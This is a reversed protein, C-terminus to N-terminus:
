FNDISIHDEFLSPIAETNYDVNYSVNSNIGFADLTNHDDFKVNSQQFDEEQLVSNSFAVYSM